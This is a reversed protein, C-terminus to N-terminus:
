LPTNMLLPSDSKVFPVSHVGCVALSPANQHRASYIAAEEGAASISIPVDVFGM